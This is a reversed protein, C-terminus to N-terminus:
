FPRRDQHGQHFASPLVLSVEFTSWGSKRRLTGFSPLAEWLILLTGHSWAWPCPGKGSRGQARLLYFLALIYVSAESRLGAIAPMHWPLLCGRHFMHEALGSAAQHSSFWHWALSQLDPQLWPGEEQTQIFLSYQSTLFSASCVSSLWM